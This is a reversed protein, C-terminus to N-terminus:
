RSLPGARRAHPPQTVPQSGAPREGPNAPRPPLADCTVVNGRVDTHYRLTGARTTASILYGQVLVQPYMVGPSPCGLSGDSWTVQEARSLVVASRQVEFRRAADAVVARRVVKPISALTVPEGAPLSQPEVVDPIRKPPSIREQAGEHEGAQALSCFVSSALIGLAKGLRNM